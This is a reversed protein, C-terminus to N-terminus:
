LTFVHGVADFKKSLIIEVLELKPSIRVLEFWGENEGIILTQADLIAISRVASKCKLFKV